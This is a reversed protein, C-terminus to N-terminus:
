QGTKRRAKRAISDALPRTAELYAEPSQRKHEWAQNARAHPLVYTAGSKWAALISAAVDAAALESSTEMLGALAEETAADPTRMSEALNTRFFSPCVCLVRINHPALEVALTDSLSVVAAKSVNYNAMGPPHLLGAMSAINIICGQGQRRAIPVYTRCGNLVGGFNIDMVYRWDDDELWDFPGGSAVGANNILIDVGGWRNCLHELVAQFQPAQRVDLRCYIATDGEDDLARLTDQGRQENLDAICVRHGEAHFAEALARGLGSAGGTILIRCPATDSM